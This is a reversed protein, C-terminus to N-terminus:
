EGELLKMDVVDVYKKEKNSSRQGFIRKKGNGQRSQHNSNDNNNRSSSINSADSHDSLYDHEGESMIDNPNLFRGYQQGSRPKPNKGWYPALSASNSATPVPSANRSKRRQNVSHTSTSKQPIPQNGDYMSFVIDAVQQREDTEPVTGPISAGRRSFNVEDNNNSNNMVVNRSWPSGLVNLHQDVESASSPREITKGRESFTSLTPSLGGWSSGITAAPDGSQLGFSWNSIDASKPRGTATRHNDMAGVMGGSSPNFSWRSNGFISSLDGEIVSRPRAANNSGFMPSRAQPKLRAQRSMFAADEMNLGFANKGTTSLGFSNGFLRHEDAEGLAFSHRDINSSNDKLANNTQRQTQQQQQQQRPVRHYPLVSMLRQSAELEAKLMAGSLQAQMDASTCICLM